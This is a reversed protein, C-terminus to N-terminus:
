SLNLKSLVEEDWQLTHVNLFQTAAAISLDTVWEGTLLEFLYAKSDTFYKAKEFIEPKEKAFYFLRPLVYQGILPCGTKQYIDVDAFAAMFESFIRQARM